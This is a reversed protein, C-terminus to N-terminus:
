YRGYDTLSGWPSYSAGRAPDPYCLPDPFTGQPSQEHGVADTPTQANLWEALDDREDDTLYVGLREAPYEDRVADVQKVTVGKPNRLPRGAAALVVARPTSYASAPAWPAHDGIREIVKGEALDILTNGVADVVSSQLFNALETLSVIAGM